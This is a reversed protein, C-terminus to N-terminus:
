FELFLEDAGVVIMKPIGFPVCVNGFDWRSVQDSTIEKLGSAEELWFGKMCDLCTLINRYGNWYPINGLEWFYLFVVDFPTDLEIMHLM